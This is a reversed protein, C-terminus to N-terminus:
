AVRFSYSVCGSGYCVAVSVRLPKDTIQRDQLPISYLIQPRVGLAELVPVYIQNVSYRFLSKIGLVELIMATCMM